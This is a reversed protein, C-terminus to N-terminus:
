RMTSVHLLSLAPKGIIPYDNVPTVIVSITDKAELGESTTLCATITDNGSWDEAGYYTLFGKADNLSSTPGVAAWWGGEIEKMVNLPDRKLVRLGSIIVNHPFAVSGYMASVNLTLFPEGHQLASMVASDNIHLYDGFTVVEDEMVIITSNGQGSTSSEFSVTPPGNMGHVLIRIFVDSGNMIEDEEQQTRKGNIASIHIWDIGFYSRKSNYVLSELLQNIGTITGDM